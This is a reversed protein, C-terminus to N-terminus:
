LNEKKEELLKKAAARLEKYQQQNRRTNRSLIKNRAETKRMNHSRCEEDYWEEEKRSRRREITEMAADRIASQIRKM